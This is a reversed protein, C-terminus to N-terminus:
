TGGGEKAGQKDARALLAAIGNRLKESGDISNDCNACYHSHRWEDSDDEKWNGLAELSERLLAMADALAAEARKTDQIAMTTAAVRSRREDAVDARLSDREMAASYPDQREALLSRIRAAAEKRLEKHTSFSDGRDLRRLLEADTDPIAPPTGCERLVQAIHEVSEEETRVAPAPMGHIQPDVWFDGSEESAKQQGSGATPAADDDAYFEAVDHYAGRVQAARGAAYGSNYGARVLAAKTPTVNWIYGTTTMHPFMDDLLRTAIAECEADSLSPKDSM